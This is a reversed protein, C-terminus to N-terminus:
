DSSPQNGPLPPMPREPPTRTNEAFLRFIDDMSDGIISGHDRGEMEIYEQHLGMEEMAVAWTRVSPPPVVNDAGGHTIMLPLEADLIPQLVERQYPQMMFAAPAIAAAAAWRDAHKSALFITGAGGMSHGMLYIRNDDVNFESRAIELVNLVDLESLAALNHPDVGQEGFGIVPSGYWGVTNYGMPGVVIYGGEEALDILRDRVIFNSDGGMGHLAVILPAPTDPDVRSSVFLTYPLYESTPAFPYSRQEARPDPEITMPFPPPGDGSPPGDQALVPQSIALVISAIAALAAGVTKLINLRM